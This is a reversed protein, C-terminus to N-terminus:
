VELREDKLKQIHLLVVDPLYTQWLEAATYESKVRVPDGFMIDKQKQSLEREAASDRIMDIFSDTGFRYILADLTPALSHELWAVAGAVPDKPVGVCTLSSRRATGIFDAWWKKVTCRTANTDDRDIFRIYGNIVESLYVSFDDPSLVNMAAIVSNASKRKFTFEFRVWHNIDSLSRLKDM